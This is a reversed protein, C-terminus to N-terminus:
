YRFDIQFFLILVVSSKEDKPFLSFLFSLSLLVFFSSLLYIQKPDGNVIRSLINCM